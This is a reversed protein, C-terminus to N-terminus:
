SKLRQEAAQRSFVGCFSGSFAGCREGRLQLQPIFATARRRPGCKETKHLDFDRGRIDEDVGRSLRGKAITEDEGLGSSIGESSCM